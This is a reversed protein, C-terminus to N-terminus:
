VDQNIKDYRHIFLKDRAKCMDNHANNWESAAQKWEREAQQFKELAARERGEAIGYDVAASDGDLVNYHLQTPKM